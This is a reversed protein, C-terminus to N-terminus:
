KQLTNYADFFAYAELRPNNIMGVTEGLEMIKKPATDFKSWEPMGSGNPNGTKAFNIWYDSMANSLEVDTEEWNVGSFVNLNGFAYAIGSSHYAGFKSGPSVREFYYLYADANESVQRAWEYMQWGFFKDGNALATSAMAQQDTGAPFLALYAVAKDGYTKRADENFEAATTPVLVFGDDKNSGLLVSARNQKGSAYLNSVKDPLVYGDVIPMFGLGTFDLLEEASEKRLESLSSVGVIEMLELGMDEAESLSLLSGYAFDSMFAGSMAIVRHFLGKALPSASLINTSMSGGSEGAITVNDPDGGFAAINDKVWRLAAVQDLLGYNGSANSESEATLEPHAMFGFVGLRYNITVFVVGKKATAEGDFVKVSGSGGTFGGGHIWFIVPLKDDSAKSPTWINLYLCDESYSQGAPPYFEPGWPFDSSAEAFFEMQPSNPGFADCARVGKWSAPPQPAKWRLDGAPPAAYPIGL